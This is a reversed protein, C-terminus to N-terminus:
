PRVLAKGACCKCRHGYHKYILVTLAILALLLLAGLVGGVAAMEATSFNRDGTHGPEGDGTASGGGAGPTGALM